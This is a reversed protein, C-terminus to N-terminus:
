WLTAEGIGTDVSKAAVCLRIEGSILKPLLTDRLTALTRSEHTNASAQAFFPRILNAFAQAVEKSPALLPFYSLAKAPVRQRGSTGTMNHIAFERFESSRALCYAFENPIPPKPRMVIYETSGWGISNNPLFDVYATKGNELCPTIRALLTDGNIFRMGSSYPRDFWKDPTHGKTPMNAMDLYPAIEGKRLARMPNIDILDQLSAVKWGEPIKGTKSDVLRNPFIDTLPKPLGTNRGEMKARVPDFDIFWSKFLARAVAELTENMRRNLEIKDDLTGLIHATARQEPLPPYPVTVDRLIQTNLSPMTAGVAIARIHAQFTALGFFYSLYGSDIKTPDPRVRLCRGSFLWGEETQRVLARRDVSGVRSLVIDGQRLTYKSLRDRDYDSVCPMDQHLIRNKGLHEVTIIPTGAPVYDKQHLQSGFPGTQIGSNSDCLNALYDESFNVPFTGYITELQKDKRDLEVEEVLVVYDRGIERHFREPLRAWDRAEVLFPITSERVAEEFDVLSDIPIKNLGPGRLVLDLDSGDHSRGNVRSGYAWVEVEPLHKHLLAELLRRHRPLLHLRDTM